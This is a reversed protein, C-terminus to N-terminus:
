SEVGDDINQGGRGKKGIQMQFLKVFRQNDGHIAIGPLRDAPIQSRHRAQGAIKRHFLGSMGQALKVAVM